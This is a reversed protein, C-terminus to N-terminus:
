GAAGGEARAKLSRAFAALGATVTSGYLCLVLPSLLGSMQDTTTYRCSGATLPLVRQERQAFLLWRAGLTYTWSICHPSAETVLMNQQRQGAGPTMEVHMELANGPAVQGRVAVTFSAWAPYHATALLIAM